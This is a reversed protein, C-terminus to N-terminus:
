KSEWSSTNLCKFTRCKINEADTYKFERQTIGCKRGAYVDSSNYLCICYM